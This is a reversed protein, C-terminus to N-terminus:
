RLYVPVDRGKTVWLNTEDLILIQVFLFHHGIDVQRGIAGVLVLLDEVNSASPSANGHVGGASGSGENLTDVKVRGLNGIGLMVRGLDAKTLLGIELDAVQVIGQRERILVKVSCVFNLGERVHLVFNSDELLDEADELGAGLERVKVPDKKVVVIGFIGDVDIVDLAGHGEDTGDVVRTVLLDLFGHLFGAELDEKALVGTNTAVLTREDIRLAVGVPPESAKSLEEEGPSEDAHEAPQPLVGLAENLGVTEANSGSTVLDNALLRGKVLLSSNAKSSLLRRTNWLNNKKTGNPM